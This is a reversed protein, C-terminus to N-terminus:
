FLEFFQVCDEIWKSNKKLFPLDGNLDKDCSSLGHEGNPYVHLEYVIKNVALVEAYRLSSIAPVVSDEATTWIFAPVTRSSINKDLAIEDQVERRKNKTYGCFLNDYKGTHGYEPSIVPYCLAAATVSCDLEKHYYKQVLSYDTSLCGAM